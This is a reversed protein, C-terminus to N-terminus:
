AKERKQVYNLYIKDLSPELPSISRIRIGLEAIKKVLDNIVQDDDAGDQIYALVRGPSPQEIKSVNKVTALMQWKDSV